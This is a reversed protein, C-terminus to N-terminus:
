LVKEIKETYKDIFIEKGEEDSSYVFIERETKQKNNVIRFQVFCDACFYRGYGNDGVHDYKNCLPCRVRNIKARGRRKTM